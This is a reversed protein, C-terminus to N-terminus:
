RMFKSCDDKDMWRHSSIRNDAVYGTSFRDFGYDDGGDVLTSAYKEQQTLCIHGGSYGTLRYFAVALGSSGKNLLSTARNEDDGQFGGTSNGWDSDVGSSRGLYGECQDNWYAYMYGITADGYNDSCTRAAPAAASADAQAAGAPVLMGLTALGLTAATALTKRM